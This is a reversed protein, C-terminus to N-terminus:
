HDRGTGREVISCIEIFEGPRRFKKGTKGWVQDQGRKDRSRGEGVM